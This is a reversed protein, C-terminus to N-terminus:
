EQMLSLRDHQPAIGDRGLDELLRMKEADVNNAKALIGLLSGVLPHSESQLDVELGLIVLERAAQKLHTVAVKEPVVALEPPLLTKGTDIQGGDLLAEVFLACVGGEPREVSPGTDSAQRLQESGEVPSEEEVRRFANLKLGVERGPLDFPPPAGLHQGSGHGFTLLFDLLAPSHGQLIEGLVEGVADDDRRPFSSKNGYEM